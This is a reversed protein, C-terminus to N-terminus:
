TVVVITSWAGCVVGTVTRPCGDPLVLRTLKWSSPVQEPPMGLQGYANWGCGWVTSDDTLFLGFMLPLESIIHLNQSM